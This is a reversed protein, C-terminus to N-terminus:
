RHWTVSKIHARCAQVALCFNPQHPCVNLPVVRPDIFQLGINLKFRQPVEKITELFSGCLESYCSVLWIGQIEKSQQVNEYPLNKM